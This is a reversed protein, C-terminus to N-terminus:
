GDAAQRTLVSLVSVASGDASGLAPASGGDLIEARQWFPRVETEGSGETAHRETLYRHPEGRARPTSSRSRPRCRRAM